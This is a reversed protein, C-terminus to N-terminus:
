MKSSFSTVFVDDLVKKRNIASQFFILLALGWNIVTTILIKFLYKELITKLFFSLIFLVLFILFRAFSIDLVFKFM